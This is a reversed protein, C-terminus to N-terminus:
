PESRWSRQEATLAEFVALASKTQYQFTREVATPATATPAASRSATGPQWRLPHDPPPGHLGTYKGIRASTPAAGSPRSADWTGGRSLQNWGEVGPRDLPPHPQFRSPSTYARRDEQRLAANYIKM